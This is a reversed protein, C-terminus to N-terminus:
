LACKECGEIDLLLYIHTDKSSWCITTIVSGIPVADLFIVHAYFCLIGTLARSLRSAFVGALIDFDYVGRLRYGPVLMCKLM